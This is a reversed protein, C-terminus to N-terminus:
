ARNKNIHLARTQITVKEINLLSECALYHSERVSQPPLGADMRVDRVYEIFIMLRNGSEPSQKHLMAYVSLHIHIIKFLEDIYKRYQQIFCSSFFM